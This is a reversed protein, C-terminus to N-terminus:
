DDDLHLLALSAAAAWSLAGFEGHLVARKFADISLLVLEQEELDDSAPQSVATAETALFLHAIAVGRNSDVVYSGLSKWSTSEYGAEEALERKATDLPQEPENIYGAVPALVVGELAYKVQRFCVVEQSTTIAIVTAYSPTVIWSWDDVIQGSPFQVRHHEV